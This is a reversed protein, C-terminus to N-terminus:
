MIYCHENLISSDLFLPKPENRSWMRVDSVNYSPSDTLAYKEDDNSERKLVKRPGYGTWLDTAVGLFLSHFSDLRRTYEFCYNWWSAADELPIEWSLPEESYPMYM